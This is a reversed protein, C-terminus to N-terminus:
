IVKPYGNGLEIKILTRQSKGSSSDMCKRKVGNKKLEQSKLKKFEGSTVTDESNITEAAAVGKILDKESNTVYFALNVGM